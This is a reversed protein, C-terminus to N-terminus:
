PLDTEVEQEEGDAGNVAALCRILVEIGGLEVQRCEIAEYAPELM